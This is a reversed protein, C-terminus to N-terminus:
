NNEAGLNIWAEIKNISCEDLKGSPPMPTYGPVHKVAGLFRGSEVHKKLETYSDLRVGGQAGSGTHCFLCRNSLIPQIDLSYSIDLTDCVQGAYYDEFNDNTCSNMSLISGIFLIAILFSNLVHNKNM